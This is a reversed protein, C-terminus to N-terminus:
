LVPLSCCGMLRHKKGRKEKLNSVVTQEQHHGSFGQCYTQSEAWGDLFLLYAALMSIASDIAPQATYGSSALVTCNNYFFLITTFTVIVSKFILISLM